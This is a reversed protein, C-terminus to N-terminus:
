PINYAGMDNGYGVETGAGDLNGSVTPRYYPDPKAGSKTMAPNFTQNSSYTVGSVANATISFFDNFSVTCSSVTAGTGLFWIRNSFPASTGASEDWIVNNKININASTTGATVSAILAFARHSSQNDGALNSVHITNNYLNVQHIGKNNDMRYFFAPNSSQPAEVINNHIEHFGYWPANTPYASPQFNAITANRGGIFYNNYIEVYSIALEMCYNEGHARTIMDFTNNYVSITHVGNDDQENQILSVNGDFYNDYLECDEMFVGWNEFAINPAGGGAWQGTPTVSITNGHILFRNAEGQNSQAAFAKMGNGFGENVSCGAVEFDDNYDGGWMFNGSAFASQGYSNDIFTSNLLQFNRTNMIMVADFFCKRVKIGEISVNNRYRVWVGSYMGRDNLLTSHTPGTGDNYATGTGDITLDKLYQAGNTESVSTFQFLSKDFEYDFDDFDDWLGAAGKVTTVDIGAGRINVRPPVIIYATETYTGAAVEILDGAIAQTVAYALTLCPSAVNSCDNATNSGTTAVFRDGTPPTPVVPGPNYIKLYDHTVYYGSSSANKTGTVRIKITHEGASLAGSTWVKIQQTQTANYLDVNTEAGGDISVAAIGHTNRRETFWRIETGNFKLEFYDNTTGSYTLTRAYWGDIDLNEPWTGVYTHVYGEYQGKVASDVITFVTDTSSPPRHQRRTAGIMHMQAECTFAILIFLVIRM